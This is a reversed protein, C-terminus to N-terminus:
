IKDIKPWHLPVGNAQLAKQLEAVTDRDAHIEQLDMGKQASIAALTGAAEGIAWEVPHVRICGNTIQTSGINKCSPVLNRIRIPILSGLPIEFPYSPTYFLRNSRTTPHLDIRYAGIGVSNERKRIGKEGRLDANIDGEVVTELAKIRRSERIYPHMSFGDPTGTIDPRLKLEPYGKAGGSRPAETQLWYLLSLSLQKAAHLHKKKEEESVDIISGGWYDNQPWNILSIDGKFFGKEFQEKDIIRRYDWLSLGEGGPFLPLHKSEGTAADPIWESLQLHDLFPAQYGRWYDYQEPKEIIHSEGEAFELAFVHTFSQVDDKMEQEMAHHEGTDDKKEAGVAYEAGALPLVDGLETADLFVAAEIVVLSNNEMNIVTVTEIRDEKIRASQIRHEMLIEISGNSIYPQLMDSLVKLAVKPEHAIRSVWANGPNLLRDAMAEPKLPYNNRYYDRVRDRYERYTTTCGFEEIWPHEDPPVAQTTLQGGIWRCEETMVVRMGQRAASLAAMCGGIGAGIIAIDKKM